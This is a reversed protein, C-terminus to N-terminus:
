FPLIDDIFFEKKLLLRFSRIMWEKSFIGKRREGNKNNKNFHALHLHDKPCL